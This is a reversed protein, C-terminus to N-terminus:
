ESEPSSKNSLVKLIKNQLNKEVWDDIYSIEQARTLQAGEEYGSFDWPPSIENVITMHEKSDYLSQKYGGRSFVIYRGDIFEINPNKRHFGAESYNWFLANDNDFCSQIDQQDDEHIDWEFVCWSVDDLGSLTTRLVYQVGQKPVQITQIHQKYTNYYTPYFMFM